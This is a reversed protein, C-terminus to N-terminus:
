LFCLLVQWLLIPNTSREGEDAEPELKLPVFSQKPFTVIDPKNSEDVAVSPEIKFPEEAQSSAVAPEIKAENKKQPFPLKIAALLSTFFVIFPNKEEEEPYASNKSDEM